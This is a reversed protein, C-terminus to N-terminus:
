PAEIGLQQYLEVWLRDYLIQAQPSLPLILEARALDEQSPYIVPNNLLEPDLLAQAGQNATAYGNFTSVSVNVEPRHLFDILRNAAQPNAATAPVVFADSWLLVGERPLVFEVPLGADLAAQLDLAYAVALAVGGHLFAQAADVPDYNELPVAQELLVALHDFAAQLEQPNESNASYGLSKLSLGVLERPTGLWVGVQGHLAPNWLDAWAAVPAAARQPDVLLGTLGWNFPLSYRNGPDYALDRFSPMLHKMNPIAAADLPLLLSEAALQPIFRSDLVLVDYTEGARLAEVAEEQSDYAVYDVQIGTEASFAQLTQTPVDEAWDAFRLPAAPQEATLSQGGQGIEPSASCAALLAGALAAPLLCCFFLRLRFASFWASM